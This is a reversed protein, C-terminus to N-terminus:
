TFPNRLKKKIYHITIDDARNQISLPADWKKDWKQALLPVIKSVEWKEDWKQPLLSFNKSVLIRASSFSEKGDRFAGRGSFKVLIEFIVDFYTFIRFNESFKLFLASELPYNM